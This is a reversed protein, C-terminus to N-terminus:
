IDTQCIIQPQEQLSLFTLAVVSKLIIYVVTVSCCHQSINLSRASPARSISPMSRATDRTSTGKRSTKIWRCTLRVCARM